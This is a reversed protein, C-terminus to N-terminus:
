VACDPEPLHRRPPDTGLEAPVAVPDRGQREARVAPQECAPEVGDDEAPVDPRWPARDVSSEGRGPLCKGIQVRLRPEPRLPPEQRLGALRDLPKSGPDSGRTT